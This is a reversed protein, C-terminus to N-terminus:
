RAKKQMEGFPTGEEIKLCYVSVHKPRLEMTKKLTGEWSSLTQGPIGFILDIGINEFGAKEANIVALVTKAADHTRGLSRLDKDDFSQAGISIRNIGANRFGRLKKLNATDPNAELTIEVDKLPPIANFIGEIIVGATKAEILSPTGGGM